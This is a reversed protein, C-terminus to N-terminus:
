GDIFIDGFMDEEAPLSSGACVLHVSGQITVSDNDSASPTVTLIQELAVPANLTSTDVHPATRPSYSDTQIGNKFFIVSINRWSMKAPAQVGARIRVRTIASYIIGSYTITEPNGGAVKLLVDSPGSTAPMTLVVDVWGSDFGDTLDSDWLKRGTTNNTASAGILFEATGGPANNSGVLMEAYTNFGSLTSIFNNTVTSGSAM